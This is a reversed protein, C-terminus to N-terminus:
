LALPVVELQNVFSPFDKALTTLNDCGLPELVIHQSRLEMSILEDDNATFGLFVTDRQKLRRKMLVHGIINEQLQVFDEENWIQLLTLDKDAFKVQLHDAYCACYFDQLHIPLTFDLAPNLNDLSAERPVMQWPLLADAVKVAQPLHDLCPSDWDVAYCVQPQTTAIYSQVFNRWQQQM